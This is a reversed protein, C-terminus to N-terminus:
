QNQQLKKEPRSRKARHPHPAPSILYLLIPLLRLYLVSTQALTERFLCPTREQVLFPLLALCLLDARICESEWHPLPPQRFFDPLSVLYSCLLAM